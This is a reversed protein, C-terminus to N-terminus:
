KLAFVNGLAVPKHSPEILEMGVNYYGGSEPWFWLSGDAAVSVVGEWTQALAVWDHHTGLRKPPSMYEDAFQRAFYDGGWRWLTGDSKLAVMIRSGLAVAQWNTDTSSQRVVFKNYQAGSWYLNDGWIWLTGDSRIGASINAYGGAVKEADWRQDAFGAQSYNTNLVFDNRKDKANFRINWLTGDRKQAVPGGFQILNEWDSNTGIQHPTQAQLGTWGPPM